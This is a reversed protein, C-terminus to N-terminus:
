QAAIDKEALANCVVGTVAFGTVPRKGSNPFAASLATCQGTEPPSSTVTPFFANGINTVLAWSRKMCLQHCPFFQMGSGPANYLTVTGSPVAQTLAMMWPVATEM